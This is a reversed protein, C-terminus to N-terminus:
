QRPSGQWIEVTDVPVWATSSDALRLLLWDDEGREIECEIGNRLNSIFAPGYSYHPGKRAEVREVVIVGRCRRAERAQEIVLSGGALVAIALAIGIPFRLPRETWMRAIVLGWLTLWALATTVVRSDRAWHHWFLIRSLRSSASTQEPNGAQRRVFALNQDLHTPTNPLQQAKRYAAIARGPEGALFFANGANYLLAASDAEKAFQLAAVQYLSRAQDLDTEQMAEAQTFAAEASSQKTAESAGASVTMVLLFSSAIWYVAGVSLRNKM